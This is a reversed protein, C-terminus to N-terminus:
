LRTGLVSMQGVRTPIPGSLINSGLNLVELNSLLGIETPISSSLGNDFFSLHALM